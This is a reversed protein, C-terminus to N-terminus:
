MISCCKANSQKRLEWKSTAVPGPRVAVATHEVIEKDTNHTFNGESYWKGVLDGTATPEITMYNRSVLLMNRHLPVVPLYHRNPNGTNTLPAFEVLRSRIRRTKGVHHGRDLYPDITALDLKTPPEAVVPSSIWQAMIATNRNFQTNKVNIEDEMIVARAAVKSSGALVVVRADWEHAINLMEQVFDAQEERHLRSDWADRMSDLFSARFPHPWNLVQEQITSYDLLCLPEPMMVVIHQIDRPLSRLWHFLRARTHLSLMQRQNREYRLDPVVLVTPGFQFVLSVNDTPINTFISDYKLYPEPFDEAAMLKADFNYHRQFLSFMEAVARFVGQFVACSQNESAFTGWGQFIDRDNWIMVAPVNALLGALEPESWKLIYMDFAFLKTQNEMAETFPMSRRDDDKKCHTFVTLQEVAGWLPDLCVQGGGHLSLHFSRQAHRQVLNAILLNRRTHEQLRQPLAFLQEVGAGSLYTMRPSQGIAPIHLTGGANSTLGQLSYSVTYEQNSMRFQLEWKCVVADPYPCSWKYTPEVSASRGDGSNYTLPYSDLFASYVALVSVEWLNNKCSKLALLPGVLLMSDRGKVTNTVPCVQSKSQPNPPTCEWFHRSKCSLLTVKNLKLHVGFMIDGVCTLTISTLASLDSVETSQFYFRDVTGPKFNDFEPGGHYQNMIHVDSSPQGNGFNLQCILGEPMVQDVSTADTYIDLEYTTLSPIPTPTAM